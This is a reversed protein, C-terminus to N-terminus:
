WEEFEEDFLMERSLADRPNQPDDTYVKSGQMIVDDGQIELVRIHPAFYKKKMTSMKM